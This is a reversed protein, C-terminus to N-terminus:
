LPSAAEILLSADTAAVYRVGENEDNVEFYLWGDSRYHPFLAFQGPGMRTVRRNVGTALDYVYINAAGAELLEQFGPDSASAYGLEAYDAATVYHYTAFLREDFSFKGKGGAICLTAAPRLSYTINVGDSQKDIFDIQYGYHQTDEGTADVGAIRAITLLNSPSVTWDGLYPTWIEQGDMVRYKEGDHIIPSLLVYSSEMWDPQEDDGNGSGFDSDFEGSVALYDGGDLSAGVAQYLGVGKSGTCQAESFDVSTTAPDEILSLSCFGGGRETGQFMFGSNDPFFEPDYAAAVSIDRAPMGSQLLPQLDIVNSGGGYDEDDFGGGTGVFRGDPSSRMWYRTKYGVERLIRVKALPMDVTWEKGFLTAAADPFIERGDADTQTFCAGPAAGDACAFMKLGADRNKAEWGELQMRRVHATLEDTQSPRCATPPNSPRGVLQELHPLGADLWALVTTFETETMLNGGDIPMQTATKFSQYEAEWRDTPYARKFVERFLPTHTGAAALGLSHATFPSRSDTPDSRLCDVLAPDGGTEDRSEDNDNDDDGVEQVLCPVVKDAQRGWSRLTYLNLNHCAACRGTSGEVDAGLAQLAQLALLRTEENDDGAVDRQDAGAALSAASPAGSDRSCAPMGLFAALMTLWLLRLMLTRGINILWIFIFSDSGTTFTM